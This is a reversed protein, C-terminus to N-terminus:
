STDWPGLPLQKPGKLLLSYESSKLFNVYQYVKRHLFATHINQFVYKNVNWECVVLILGMQFFIM